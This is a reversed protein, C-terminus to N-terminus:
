RRWFPKSVEHEVDMRSAGIDKLMHDDLMALTRRQVVRARWEILRRAIAVPEIVRASDWLNAPLRRWLELKVIRDLLADSRWALKVRTKDDLGHARKVIKVLGSLEAAPNESSSQINPELLETSPSETFDLM